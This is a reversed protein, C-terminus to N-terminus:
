GETAPEDGAAPEAVEEEVVYLYPLHLRIDGDDDADVWADGSGENTFAGMGVLADAVPGSVERPIARVGGVYTGDPHPYIVRKGGKSRAM